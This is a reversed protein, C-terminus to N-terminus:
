QLHKLLHRPKDLGAIRTLTASVVLVQHILFLAELICQSNKQFRIRTKEPFILLDAVRQFDKIIDIEAFVCVDFGPFVL